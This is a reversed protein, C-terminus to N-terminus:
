LKPNPSLCSHRYVSFRGSNSEVPMQVLQNDADYLEFFVHGIGYDKSQLEPLTFSVPIDITDGPNLSVPQVTEYLVTNRGPTLATLKVKSAPTDSKNEVTVSLNIGPTPNTDLNFMAVPGPAKAYTVLDRFLKLESTSAQSHAAGWDPYQASIWVFGKGYSYYLLGPESNAMRRLLILSDSPYVPVYGDVASSAKEGTLASLAPHMNEKQFYLSGWTCSQSERWGYAKLPEEANKPIVSYNSGYQQCLIILSGGLRVYEELINKLTSDNERSYMAGSPIILVKSTRLLEEASNEGDWILGGFLNVAEHYFGGKYILAEPALKYENVESGTSFSFNDDQHDPPKQPCDEKNICDDICKGDGKKCLLDSCDEWETPNFKRAGDDYYKLEKKKYLAEYPKPGCSFVKKMCDETIGEDSGMNKKNTCRKAHYTYKEGTKPDFCDIEDTSEIKFCFKEKLDEDQSAHHLARHILEHFLVSATCYGYKGQQWDKKKYYYMEKYLGYITIEFTKPDHDGLAQAESIPLAGTSEDTANFMNQLNTYNIVSFKFKIEKKSLLENMAEIVCSPLRKPDNKDLELNNFYDPLLQTRIIKEWNGKIKNALSLHKEQGDKLIEKIKDDFEIKIKYDKPNNQAFLPSILFSTLFLFIFVKFTLIEKIVKTGM